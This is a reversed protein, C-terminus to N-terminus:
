MIIYYQYAIVRVFQAICSYLSSIDPLTINLLDAQNKRKLPKKHTKIYGMDQSM